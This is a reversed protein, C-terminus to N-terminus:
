VVFLNDLLDYKLYIGLGLNPHIIILVYMSKILTNVKWYSGHMNILSQSLFRM